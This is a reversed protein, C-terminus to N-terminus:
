EVTSLEVKVVEFEVEDCRRKALEFEAGERTEFTLAQNNSVRQQVSPWGRYDTGCLWQDTIKSRIAYMNDGSGKNSGEEVEVTAIM